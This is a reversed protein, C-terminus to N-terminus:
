SSVVVNTFIMFAKLENTTKSGGRFVSPRVTPFRDWYKVGITKKSTFFRLKQRSCFRPQLRESAQCASGKSRNTIGPLEVDNRRLLRLQNVREKVQQIQKGSIWSVVHQAVDYILQSIRGIMVIADRGRLHDGRKLNSYTSTYSDRLLGTVKM